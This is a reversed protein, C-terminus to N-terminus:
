ENDLTKLEDMVRVEQGDRVAEVGRVIVQEGPDLGQIIEVTDKTRLGTGVDRRKAIGEEVVFVSTGSLSRLVSIAPVMITDLRQALSLEVIAFNGPYLLGDKNPVKGRLTITRTDPNVVPDRAVVTGPFTERIGTVRITLPVGLQLQTQYREPVSFDVQLPDLQQLTTIRTEPSIIQGPSIHRLGIRGSFPARIATKDIRAQLLMQRARLVERENLVTDYEEESVLGREFLQEQREAKQEALELQLTTGNLEARLESDDLRVLLDGKEVDSGDTFLIEVVRGQIEPRLDIGEEGRISGNLVLRDELATPKVTFTQVAPGATPRTAQPGSGSAEGRDSLWFLSVVVAVIIFLILVIPKAKM